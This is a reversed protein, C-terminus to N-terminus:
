LFIKSVNPNANRAEVRRRLSRTEIAGVPSIDNSPLQRRPRNEIPQEHESTDDSHDSNQVEAIRRKRSNKSINSPSTEAEAEAWTMYTANPDHNGDKRM